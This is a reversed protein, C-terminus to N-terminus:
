NTWSIVVAGNQGNQSTVSSHNEAGGTGGAGYGTGNSGAPGPSCGAQNGQATCNQPAAVGNPYGGTGGAKCGYTGTGVGGGGGSSNITTTGTPFQPLIGTGSVSSTGGSSGNACSDYVSRAGGAGVVITITQGPIIGTGSLAVTQYGGSGGGAGCGSDGGSACAAAGGGGGGVILASLSYIGDPVTFTYTGPTTYSVSGSSAPYVQTWSGSQNVWIRKVTSWSGSRNVFIQKSPTWTGNNVYVIGTM